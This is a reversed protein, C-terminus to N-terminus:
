KIDAVVDPLQWPPHELVVFSTLWCADQTEIAKPEASTIIIHPRYASLQAALPLCRREGEASLSWRNAPVGPNIHPLM